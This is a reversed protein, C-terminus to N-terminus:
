KSKISTKPLKQTVHFSASFISSLTQNDVFLFIIGYSVLFGRSGLPILIQVGAAVV